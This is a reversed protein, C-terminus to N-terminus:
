TLSTKLHSIHTRQPLSQGSSNLTKTPICIKSLLPVSTRLWFHCGNGCHHYSHDSGLTKSRLPCLYTPNALSFSIICDVHQRVIILSMLSAESLLNCLLYLTNTTHKSINAAPFSFSWTPLTFSRYFTLLFNVSEQKPM